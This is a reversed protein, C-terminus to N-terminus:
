SAHPRPTSGPRYRRTRDLPHGLRREHRRARIVAFGVLRFRTYRILLLAQKVDHVTVATFPRRGARLAVPACGEPTELGDGAGPSRSYRAERPSGDDGPTTRQNLGGGGPFFHRIPGMYRPPTRARRRPISQGSTIILWGPVSGGGTLSVSPFCYARRCPRNLLFGRSPARRNPV